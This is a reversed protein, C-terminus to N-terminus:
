IVNDGMCLTDVVKHIAEQCGLMNNLWFVEMISKKSFFYNLESFISWLFDFFILCFNDRVDENEIKSIDEAMLPWYTIFPDFMRQDFVMEKDVLIRVAEFYRLM